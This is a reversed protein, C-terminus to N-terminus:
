WKEFGEPKEHISNHGISSDLSVKNTKPINLEKSKKQLKDWFDKDKICCKKYKECNPFMRQVKVIM